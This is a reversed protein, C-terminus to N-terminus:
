KKKISTKNEKQKWHKHKSSTIMYNHRVNHFFKTWHASYNKFETIQFTATSKFPFTVGHM